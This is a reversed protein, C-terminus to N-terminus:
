KKLLYEELEKPMFRVGRVTTVGFEKMKALPCKEKDYRTEIEIGMLSSINVEGSYEYPIDTQTVKCKYLIASVPSGVYIYVTDGKKINRGQKWVQTDSDAFEKVIDFYKPNAPIIYSGSRHVSKDTLRKSERLLEMVYEDDATDDLLVSLWSGKNMHYCTFVAKNDILDSIKEESAKLNLVEVTVNKDSARKTVKDKTVNMVLGYWKNNSKNRFVGYTPATAFPYDPSENFEEYVRNAIRNSQDFIFPIEYFCKEKIDSLLEGYEERVRGVYEGTRNPSRFANYEDMTDTDTLIGTIIGNPDIRIEASLDGSLLIKKYSYIGDTYNFGYATLKDPDPRSRLFIDSEFSM